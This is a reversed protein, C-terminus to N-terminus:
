LLASRRRVWAPMTTLVVSDVSKSHSCSASWSCKLARERSILHAVGKGFGGRPEVVRQAHEGGAVLADLAVALQELAHVLVQARMAGIGVGAGGGLPHHAVEIAGPAVVVLVLLLIQEGHQALGAVGPQRAHEGFQLRLVRAHICGPGGQPRPEGFEIRLDPIGLEGGPHLGEGGQVGRVQLDLIGLHQRPRGAQEVGVRRCRSPAAM